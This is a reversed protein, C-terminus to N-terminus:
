YDLSSQLDSALTISLALTRGEGTAGFGMFPSQHVVWAFRPPVAVFHTTEAFNRAIVHCTV